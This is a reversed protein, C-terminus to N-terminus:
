KLMSLSYRDRKRIQVSEEQFLLQRESEKELSESRFCCSFFFPSFEESLFGLLLYTSDFIFASDLSCHWRNVRQFNMSIMLWVNREHGNYTNDTSHALVPCYATPAIDVVFSISIYLYKKNTSIKRNWFTIEIAWSSHWASFSFFLIRRKWGSPIALLYDSYGLMPVQVRNSRQVPRQNAARVSPSIIPISNRSKAWPSLTKSVKRAHDVRRRHRVSTKEVQPSFRTSATRRSLITVRDSRTRARNLITFHWQLHISGLAEYYRDIKSQCSPVVWPVVIFLIVFCHGHLRPFAARLLSPYHHYNVWPRHNVISQYLRGCWKSFACLM